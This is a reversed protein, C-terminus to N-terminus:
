RTADIGGGDLHFPIALRLPPRIRKEDDDALDINEEVFPIVGVKPTKEASSASASARSGSNSVGPPGDSARDGPYVVTTVAAGSAAIQGDFLCSPLKM